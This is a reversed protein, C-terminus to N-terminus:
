WDHTSTNSNRYTIQIIIIEVFVCWVLYIESITQTFCRSRQDNGINSIVFLLLRQLPGERINYMCMKILGNSGEECM